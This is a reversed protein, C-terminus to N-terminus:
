YIEKKMKKAWVYEKHWLQYFLGIFSLILIGYIVYLPRGVIEAYSRYFSVSYFQCLNHFTALFSIIIVARVSVYGLHALFSKREEPRRYFIQIFKGKKHFYRQSIYDTLKASNGYTPPIKYQFTYYYFAYILFGVIVINAIILGNWGFGLVSYLPNTEGEPNDFFWLGTSYFDCGRSCILLSTLLYFKLKM